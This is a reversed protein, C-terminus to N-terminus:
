PDVLGENGLSPRGGTEVAYLVRDLKEDMSEVRDCMGGERRGTQRNEPGLIVDELKALRRERSDLFRVTRAVVSASLLVIAVVIGLPVLSQDDLVPQDQLWWTALGSATASLVVSFGFLIKVGTLERSQHNKGFEEEARPPQAMRM